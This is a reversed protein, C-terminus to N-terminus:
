SGPAMSRLREVLKPLVELVYDIEEETNDKGLSFLVAGQAASHEVGIATLVPSVKLAKSICATGSAFALGRTDALLMLGEGEVQEFSINLNTSIRREGPEPGNLRMKPVRAKLGEWFKRQLSATHTVRGAMERQAAECAVGAGVIGPVNETGARRGGEQVGGHILSALRTRRHKYLVGVGKPGYFRHPSLSLLSIGLSQVDMPLWGGSFNADVFLPVGKENAVQGIARLPQITGIDHNAQHVCILITEQTVNRRVEEPDVFGEKDVKVKTITCGQTELFELSGLVAPHEIATTVIHNGRIRNASALGKVALNVAETGGSTFIIEEPFAANVLKAAQERAKGLAERVRLGHQHMSSASGYVETFFPRMAEFVEPLVPTAAQQDLYVQRM